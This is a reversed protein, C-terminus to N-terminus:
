RTRVGSEVQGRKCEDPMTTLALIEVTALEDVTESLGEGGLFDAGAAALGTVDHIPCRPVGERDEVVRSFSGILSTWSTPRISKPTWSRAPQPSPLTVKVTPLSYRV